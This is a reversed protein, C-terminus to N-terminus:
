SIPHGKSLIETNFLKNISIMNVDTQLALEELSAPLGM